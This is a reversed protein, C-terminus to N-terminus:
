WNWPTDEIPFRQMLADAEALTSKSQHRIECAPLAQRVEDISEDTVDTDWFCAQTLHTADQLHRLGGDSIATGDLSLSVLEPMKALAKLEDDYLNTNSISLTNLTTHKALCAWATKSVESNVLTMATLCPLNFIEEASTQDLVVNKLELTELKPYRKSLRLPSRVKQQLFSIRLYSLQRFDSEVNFQFEPMVCDILVLSQLAHMRGIKRMADQSIRAKILTISHLNPLEVITNVYEESVPAIEALTTNGCWPSNSASNATQWSEGAHEWLWNPRRPETSLSVSSREFAAIAERERWIPVLTCVVGVIAIAVLSLAYLWWRRRSTSHQSENSESM